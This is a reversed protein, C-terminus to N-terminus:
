KNEKRIFRFWDDNTGSYSIGTALSLSDKGNFVVFFGVGYNYLNEHPHLNFSEKLNIMYNITEYGSLELPSIKILSFTGSQITTDAHFVSYQNSNFFTVFDFDILRPNGLIDTPVDYVKWTGYLEFFTDEKKCATINLYVLLIIVLFKKM